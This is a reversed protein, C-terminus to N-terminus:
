VGMRNIITDIMKTVESVFRAAASYGHQFKIMQALEEDINVGSISERLDRLNKMVLNTTEMAYSAEQGKLGIEAVTDAFYDDFTSVHGVMVQHNRLSAIALAASGDGSYADGNGLGFGSAISAAETKLNQNIDIWGSPHALPAVAFDLGGGQLDLVANAKEWNYAGEEGSKLLMGAYGVLFQGSDEIHRIVFDPNQMGFAPTAKLSLMNNQDLRAVVESGSINIRAIIDEVTDTSYYPVEVDTKIGAFTLAGELGTQEKMELANAGTIRFIYSSDYEGDGSRDYNGAINNIFPYEVFFDNGTKGNLGFGKRHIENVLDSFNVTMMDLNQIEHRVDGDRLEALALLKGGQLFVENGNEKWVIKSYGENLPDQQIELPHLNKGQILHYGATHVVLEDPDRTDVTIDIIQSLKEILLDRRDLMDNPNDGAARAKLIQENLGTIETGLDNVQNVTVFIDDELMDRINKLNSYRDHIGSMLTEGRQLVAQRAAMEGPHVSLEQWSEWFRDMMSRVSYEGPENYIQDVLLLYKDRATWYGEGSAQTVIRSELIGDRIRDISAVDVGQGIMGPTMERNLGPLYLPDTAKMEVKQRSYGEVSANSLNHGITALGQTHAILSRKGLEIGSFTSQM